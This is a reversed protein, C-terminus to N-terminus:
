KYEIFEGSEVDRIFFKVVKRPYKAKIYSYVKKDKEGSDGFMYWKVKPYLKIIKEIKKIKYTFQETISNRNKGNIKKLLLIHKPFHHYKLFNEITNYLQQPSGSIIFLPNPTNKPNKSLIEKFWSAMGDVVKRQKYNKFITNISLQLKNTVNSVILTDDFDSIIGIARQNLVFAKAIKYNKNGEIQLLINKYGSKLPKQTNIDFNFYGEDDGRTTYIYGDIKATIIRNKIEDTKVEKIRRYANEIWNDSINADKFNKIKQMRGQIIVRNANGYVSYIVINSDSYLYLNIM